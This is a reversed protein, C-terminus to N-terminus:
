LPTERRLPGSERLSSVEQVADAAPLCDSACMSVAASPPIPLAFAQYPQRVETSPGLRQQRMPHELSKHGVFPWIRPLM